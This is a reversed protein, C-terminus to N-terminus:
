HITVRHTSRTTADQPLFQGSVGGAEKADRIMQPTTEMTLYLTMLPQFSCSQALTGMIELRYRLADEATLIPPDANPMILGRRFCRATYPLVSRLIGWQRLHLHFDDPVILQVQKM